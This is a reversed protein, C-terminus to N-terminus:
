ASVRRLSDATIAKMIIRTAKRNIKDTVDDLGIKVKVIYPKGFRVGYEVLAMQMTGNHPIEVPTNM